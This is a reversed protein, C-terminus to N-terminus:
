KKTWKKKIEEPTEIGWKRMAKIGIERQIILAKKYEEGHNILDLYEDIEEDTQPMRGQTSLVFEKVIEPMPKM